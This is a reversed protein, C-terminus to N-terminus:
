SCFFKDDKIKIESNFPSSNNREWLLAGSNIDIAYYKAINDAVILTKTTQQLFYYQSNNKKDKSIIIKKEM